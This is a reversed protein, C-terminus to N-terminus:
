ASGDVNTFTGAALSYATVHTIGWLSIFSTGADTQVCATAGAAPSTETLGGV